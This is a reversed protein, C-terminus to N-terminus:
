AFNKSATSHQKDYNIAFFFKFQYTRLGVQSIRVVTEDRHAAHRAYVTAVASTIYVIYTTTDFLHIKPTLLMSETICCSMKLVSM